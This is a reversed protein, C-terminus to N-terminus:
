IRTVITSFTKRQVAFKTNQKSKKLSKFDDDSYVHTQKSALGQIFCMRLLM